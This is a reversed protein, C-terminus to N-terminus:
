AHSMGSLLNRDTIMDPVGLDRRHKKVLHIPRSFRKAFKEDTIKGLLSEEESSWSIRKGRRPRAFASVGLTHRRAQVSKLPRNLRRAIQDDSATGILKDEDASWPRKERLNPDLRIGKKTRRQKIAVLSHGTRAAIEEDRVKGLLADDEPTWYILVGHSINLHGWLRGALRNQQLLEFRFIWERM